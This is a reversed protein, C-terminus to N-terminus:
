KCSILPNLLTFKSRKEVTATSHLIKKSNPKSDPFTKHLLNCSVGKKTLYPSKLNSNLVIPVIRM